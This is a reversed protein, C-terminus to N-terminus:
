ARHNAIRGKMDGFLADQPGPLRLFEHPFGLDVASAEDLAQVLEAPIAVRLCGLSDALQSARRAGVIPVIQPHQQRLWALAVQAPSAGLQAAVESVRRAIRLNQESMKPSQATLRSGPAVQADHKGTLLGAGLPSWPTVCLDFARAMPLLDREPTRQVLSYEVQLGAFATWGRLDALTNAQSVVWAPTDSIGLYHVKRASVLDDLGRMVEAVPTTFDWMHLWLIDLYDTQLRRLSEEVSRVLNKRHNGSANVDDRRDHLTYKSALVFRDRDAGVFEGLMRESTGETYRNATDIFNGGSAAFTDFIKRSEARDAGTGWETGFTMAGLCIESVRLGTHGFLKYIM